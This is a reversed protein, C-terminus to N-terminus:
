CEKKFESLVSAAMLYSSQYHKSGFIGSSMKQLDEHIVEVSQTITSRFLKACQFCASQDLEATNNFANKLEQISQSYDKDLLHRRSELMSKNILKRHDKCNTGEIPCSVLEIFDEKDNFYKSDRKSISFLESMKRKM